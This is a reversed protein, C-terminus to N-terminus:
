PPFTAYEVLAAHMTAWAPRDRIFIAHDPKFLDPEDLSGVYLMVMHPLVEPTGFLLSGCDPCFHRIAKNQSGGISVFSKPDGSVNFSSRSIGM